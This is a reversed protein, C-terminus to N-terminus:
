GPPERALVVRCYDRPSRGTHRRFVRAFYKPNEYGVLKATEYVKLRGQRMLDIAKELRVRTLYEVFTMGV